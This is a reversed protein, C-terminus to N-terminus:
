RAHGRGARGDHTCHGRLTSHRCCDLRHRDPTRPRNTRGPACREQVPSCQRPCAPSPQCTRRQVDGCSLTSAAFNTRFIIIQPREDLPSRGKKTTVRRAFAENGRCIRCCAFDHLARITGTQQRRGNNDNRQQLRGVDNAASGAISTSPRSVPWISIHIRRRRHFVERHLRSPISEISKSRLRCVPSARGLILRAVRNAARRRDTKLKRRQRDADFAAPDRLCSPSSRARRHQVREHIAAVVLLEADVQM